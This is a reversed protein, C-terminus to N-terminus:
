TTYAVSIQCIRKYRQNDKYLPYHYCYLHLTNTAPRACILLNMVVNAEMSPITISYLLVFLFAANGLCEQGYVGGEVGETTCGM